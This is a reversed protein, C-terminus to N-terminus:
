VTTVLVFLSSLSRCETVPAVSDVLSEAPLLMSNTSIDVADEDTDGGSTISMSEVDKIVPINGEGDSSSTVGKVGDAAFEVDM